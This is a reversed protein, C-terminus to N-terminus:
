VVQKLTVTKTEELAAQLFAIRAEIFRRPAEKNMEKCYDAIKDLRGKFFRDQFCYIEIRKIATIVSSHNQEFYKATHTLPVKFYIDALFCIMSRSRVVDRNRWDSRLDQPRIGTSESVKDTIISLIEFSENM